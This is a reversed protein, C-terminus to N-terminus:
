LLYSGGPRPPPPSPLTAQELQLLSVSRAKDEQSMLAPPLASGETGTAARCGAQGEMFGNAVGWM